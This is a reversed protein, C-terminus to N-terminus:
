RPPTRRFRRVFRRLVAIAAYALAGAGVLWPLVDAPGLVAARPPIASVLARSTGIRSRGAVVVSTGPQGNAILPWPVNVSVRGLRDARAEQIPDSGLRIDVLADARYGDGTVQLQDGGDVWALTLRPPPKAPAVATAPRLVLFAVGLGCASLLVAFGYRWALAPKRV